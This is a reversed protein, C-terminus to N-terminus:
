CNAICNGNNDYIAPDFSGADGYGPAEYADSGSSDGPCNLLCNGNADYISDGNGGGGGGGGNWSGGAILGSIFDGDNPAAFVDDIDSDAMLYCIGSDKSDGVWSCDFSAWTWAACNRERKCADSCDTYRRAINGICPLISNIRRGFITKGTMLSVDGPGGGGGGSGGDIPTPPLNSWNDEPANPDFGTNWDGIGGSFNPDEYAGSGSSDPSNGYGPAEYVDEAKSGGNNNQNVGKKGPKKKGWGKVKVRWDAYGSIAFNSKEKRVNTDGISYLECRKLDGPLYTFRSCKSDQKCKVWCNHSSKVNRFVARPTGRYRVKREMKAKRFKKALLERTSASFFTINEM